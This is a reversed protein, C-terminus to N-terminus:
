AESTSKKGGHDIEDLADAVNKDMRIIEKQNLVPLFLSMKGPEERSPIVKNYYAKLVKDRLEERIEWFLKRQEKTMGTGVSTRLLGDRTEIIFSGLTGKNKRHENFGVIRFDADLIEKIRARKTSRHIGFLMDKDNWIIGEKGLEKVVYDNFALVEELSNVLRHEVLIVDPHNIEAVLREALEKRDKFPTVFKRSKYENVCIADFVHLQLSAVETAAEYGSAIASNCLGSSSQRDSSVLEGFIVWKDRISAPIADEIHKLWIRNGTRSLIESPEVSANVGDEKISVYSGEPNVDCEEINSVRVTDYEVIRPLQVNADKIAKNYSSISTGLVWDKTLAKKLWMIGNEPFREHIVHSLAAVQVKTLRKGTRSQEMFLQVIDHALLTLDQMAYFASYEDNPHPEPAPFKAVFTSVKPDLGVTYLLPTLLTDIELLKSLKFLKDNRGSTLRIDDLRNFIESAPTYTM